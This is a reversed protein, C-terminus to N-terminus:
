QLKKWEAIIPAIQVLTLPRGGALRADEGFYNIEIENPARGAIRETEYTIVIQERFTGDLTTYSKPGTHIEQEHIWKYGDATKRFAITRSTGGDIHLMADYGSRARSELRVTAKSDIPTFGLSARDVADIAKIMPALRPDSWSVKEPVFGCSALLILLGAAAVSFAARQLARDPAVNPQSFASLRFVALRPKTRADAQPPPTLAVDGETM